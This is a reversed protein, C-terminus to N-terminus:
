GRSFVPGGSWGVSPLKKCFIAPLFFAGARRRGRRGAGGARPLIAAKNSPPTQKIPTITGRDDQDCPRKTITNAGRDDQRRLCYAAIDPPPWISRATLRLFIPCFATRDPRKNSDDVAEAIAYAGKMKPTIVHLVIDCIERQRIEEQQCEPTWDEVVPDFYDITLKPILEERWKSGNCTGGLFVKM